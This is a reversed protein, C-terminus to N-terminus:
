PLHIQDVSGRTLNGKADIAEVFYRVNGQDTPLKAVFHRATRRANTRCPYPGLDTLPLRQEGRASRLVVTASKVGSIDDILTHLMGERPAAVLGGSGWTLGGPNAPSIWPPFITPGLPDRQILQEISNALQSFVENAALTVQEDWVDQGTWYWYCSTEAMLLMRQCREVRPDYDLCDEASHVLNQLATLVAWSNLDPSYEDSCKSFWKMFQPDGNDAGSWSGPEIHTVDSPDVPFRELYDCVTTLEFRTDQNLWEVMRETNHRYYSDAGGGYNDGDSHLIFFPPHSPDFGDSAVIRDYVQGLVSAYQLAGFGGRADENGIYREAPVGIIRHEREQADVYRVVAPRLLKPSIPSAAWINQLQLWDSVPANVQDAPNPPLMGENKGAYPYDACARFRHISDYIVSTIGAEVLAPIMRVHFATEPPFLVSSAVTGFYDSIMRRHLTIQRVIDRHPILPMLPHFFGFAAFDLRPHSLATRSTRAECLRRRWNRFEGNALGESACRELQEVLSGSFSATLGAHALHGSAYREVADVLYDSYAGRRSAFTSDIAGDWYTADATRYYPQHMHKHIGFYLRVRRTAGVELQPPTNVAAKDAQSTRLELTSFEKIWDDGQASQIDPRRCGEAQVRYSGARLAGAPICASYEVGGDGDLEARAIICQESQRWIIVQAFPMSGNARLRVRFELNTGDHRLLNGEAPVEVALIRDFTPPSTSM